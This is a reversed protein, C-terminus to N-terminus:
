ARVTSPMHYKVYPSVDHCLMFLFLGVDHPHQILLLDGIGGVGVVRLAADVAHGHGTRQPLIRCRHEFRQHGTPGAATIVHEIDGHGGRQVQFLGGMNFGFKFGKLTSLFPIIQSEIDFEGEDKFIGEIKGNYLFIADQGPRIILRSGKKIEKNTWKWFICDDKYEEWEVVNSLQSKFLGM